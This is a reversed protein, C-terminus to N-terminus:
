RILWLGTLTLTASYVPHHDEDTVLVTYAHRDGGNLAQERAIDPLLQMAQARAEDLTACETGDDDFQHLAGDHVDFFYRAM